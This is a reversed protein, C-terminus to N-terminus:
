EEVEHKALVALFRPDARLPDWAPDARLVHPTWQGSRALLDDLANIAEEYQQCMTYVLALEAVRYLAGWADRSAPMLEFGLEAEKIADDRRDLGAYAVGLSGHFRADDPAQRIREELELRAADFSRVAEDRQGNLLQVQARLLATPLYEYENDMGQWKNRQLLRLAEAYDRKVLAVDTMSRALFWSRDAIGSVRRAAALTEEAKTIDGQWLVQLWAYRAHAEGWQRNLAVAHEFSREAEDYQRALVHSQAVNFHWVATGPDLEAARGISRASEAWKGQRRLVCGVGNHSGVANPQIRLSANFEELARSYDVHGFYYYWGLANHGAALDPRLRVAQEATERARTLRAQSRDWHFFYMLAHMYAAAAQAQAFRPDRDVAAQFMDLAAEMYRRDLGRHELDLGRLFLDYAELDDTAVERLASRERPQLEVGMSRVANEAVESQIAFVDALVRDYPDAWVHTDDAVRILRPSIRVRGERGEGHEWRVSGELVYDVGLDSGVDKITKGKRDYGKATTRSVVGLGRVNALRSTIEEAMGTAFYTDEPAGLNEFPLVVIRTLGAARPAPALRRSLWLGGGIALVVLTAAVAGAAKHRQLWGARRDLLRRPRADGVANLVLVLDFASQFRNGPRKELCQRVIRELSVPVEPPLPEPDKTLIAAIVDGVSEGRFARTGSLMEHLVCGLAFVDTRADVPQLRIQEPAMYGTSGLMAGTETSGVRTPSHALDAPALPAEVLKALGFDLIKVRGDATLFLNEPKLDRHVIGKAHAAALGQAVQVAIEVAKRVPLAGGELRGRLTEGELLETVLYPQGDVSGVDHVTLINPHDLASAARAELEFRRLRDPDGALETPLVKIAVDRGLRTDRGRYVVGMGGAGLQAVIEYPGLRSGPNVAPRGTGEGTRGM